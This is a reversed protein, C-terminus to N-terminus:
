EEKRRRIEEIRQIEKDGSKYYRKRIKVILGALVGIMIGFNILTLPNTLFEMLDFAGEPAIAINVNIVNSDTFGTENYSRVLIYYIGTELSINYNLDTVGAEVLTVSGNIETIMSTYIYVSYNDAGISLTWSLEFQGDTDPTDANHSLTFPKPSLIDYRITVDSYGLNGFSDNAYFRITITGNILAALDITGSTGTFTYNTAGGDTTYWSINMNGEIITLNFQPIVHTFLQNSTPSIITIIPALIDKQVVIDQYNVNGFTDNAYFRITVTGNLLADWATQNITGTAGVFPYITPGGNLTYGSANLNGDTITVNFNPANSNVLQNLVPAVVIISPGVNDVYISVSESSIIGTSDNAYFTIIILTGNIISDWDNQNFTENVTFTRNVTSGEIFYWMTDLSLDTINVEFLPATAGFLDNDKPSIIIISPPGDVDVSIVVAQTQDVNGSDDIAWIRIEYDGITYSSINSWTGSWYNGSQTLSINFSTSANIMAIANSISSLSDIVSANILLPGSGYVGPSPSIIVVTPADLDITIIVAQTQDANGEDDIAWIRIEYDGSTYSSINDWTCTWNNGIGKTMSINFPASANIMAIASSVTLPLLRLLLHAQTLPSLLQKLKILIEKIM